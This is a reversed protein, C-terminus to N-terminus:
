ARKLYFVALQTRDRLGLKELIVSLYNRVTGESLYLTEAIERNSLGKAVLEIIRHERKNIDFKALNAQGGGTLLKPLKTIIADGFVSQGMYVAKLAPIISEFDQKLIYGKAGLRLAQVIYEDDLFTTLFLIRADPFRGLLHECAELGTMRDMRIDMLLVDPKLQTFLKVGELGDHGTGVVEIGRDAQLITKLSQCVLPDDDIILVRM